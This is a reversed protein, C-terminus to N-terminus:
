REIRGPLIFEYRKGLLKTLVWRDLRRAGLFLTWIMKDGQYYKTVSPGSLPDSGAPLGRNIVKIFDPLLDSKKEKFLNAALDTMSQSPDYYRNLVEGAFLYKLLKRLPKPTSRLILDPNLRHAGNHRIFPTSTDVLRPPGDDPLAWNSLQADVALELGPGHAQNFRWVKQIEALVRELLDRCEERTRSHIMGHVFSELPFLTQAIYLVVPGNPSEIVLTETEPLSLGAETLLRCYDYYLARYNEAEARTTFLPMRKYATSDDNGLRFIASIEGYGIMVAPVRSAELDQPNLGAEFKLLLEQDIKM